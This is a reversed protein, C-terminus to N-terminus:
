TLLVRRHTADGSSALPCSLLKPNTGGGESPFPRWCMTRLPIPVQHMATDAPGTGPAPQLQSPRKGLPHKEAHDAEDGPRSPAMPVLETVCLGIDMRSMEWTGLIWTASRLLQQYINPILSKIAHEKTRNNMALLLINAEQPQKLLNSCVHQSLMFCWLNIKGYNRLSSTRFRTPGHDKKSSSSLIWERYRGAEPHELHGKAQTGGIEAPWMVEEERQRRQTDRVLVSTM